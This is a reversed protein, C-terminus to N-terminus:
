SITGYATVDGTVKLNGTTDLEMKATGGYKIILKNSSVEFTWNTGGNDVALSTGIVQGASSYVVGKSNAVTGASSGDMLNLDAATATLGLTVLAAAADADDVLSQGFTSVTITSTTGSTATPNGDADFALYKNARTSKLPLEVSTFEDGPSVKMSRDLKEDLQQTMIVLGDLQENLSSALLDGATVFDTTRQLQRGGIITLVDSSVLASTLTISGTGNANTSVTYDTTLTLLTTNKYVAIDADALINFTFAFPGTGTNGTFQVRRTVPNIAIDTM